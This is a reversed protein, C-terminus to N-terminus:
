WLDLVQILSNQTHEHIMIFYGFDSSFPNTWGFHFIPTKKSALPKVSHNCMTLKNHFHEM